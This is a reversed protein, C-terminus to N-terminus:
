SFLPQGVLRRYAELYKERTKEIIEQPLEPAPPSKDWDLTLLYDRLFQKDFSRQPRGPSYEDEPWFRSSDPTLVEDILLLTDGVLGFEFKTDAILIGRAHAIRWAKEYIAISTARIRGALVPGITEVMEEFSINEDHAGLEEKTAPTFIPKELRSSELLGAPLRIGCIEGTKEYEAWGSGSLYGRVVCEVPLAQAKKVLMARGELMDTYPRCVRPFDEVATSIMHNPVIDEMIKFWFQSIQNLVRGKDPIPDSMIVDFASIRDTAVILLQDGLDYIDRVKGRGKLKLDRFDTERVAPRM